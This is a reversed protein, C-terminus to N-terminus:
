VKDDLATYETWFLELTVNMEEESSGSFLTKIVNNVQKKHNRDSRYKADKCIHLIVCLMWGTVSFDTNIHLQRKQWLNYVTSSLSELM